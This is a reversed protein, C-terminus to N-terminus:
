FFSFFFLFPISVFVVRVGVHVLICYLRPLFSPGLVHRSNVCTYIVYEMVLYAVDGLTGSKRLM